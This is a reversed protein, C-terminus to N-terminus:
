NENRAGEVDIIHVQKEAHFRGEVGNKVACADEDDFVAGKWTRYM